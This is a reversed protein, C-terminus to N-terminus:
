AMGATYYAEYFNPAKRLASQFDKLAAQATKETYLKKKGSVLLDRSSQPMALEHASIKQGQSGPPQVIHAHKLMVSLGRQSTFSLDIHLEASDFGTAQVKLIYRAPQLGQFSFEGDDAPSEQVVIGGNDCLAISARAIRQNTGDSFITGTLAVAPKQSPRPLAATAAVLFPVLSLVVRVVRIRPM